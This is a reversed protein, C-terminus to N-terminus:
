SNHIEVMSRLQLCKVLEWLYRIEAGSKSLIGISISTTM